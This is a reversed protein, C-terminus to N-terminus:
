RGVLVVISRSDVAYKNQDKLEVERGPESLDDPSPLSTDAFRLWRRGRRARPLEFAHGEARGDTHGRTNNEAHDRTYLKLIVEEM